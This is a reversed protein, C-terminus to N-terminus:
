WRCGSPSSAPLSSSRWASPAATSRQARGHSEPTRRPRPCTTASVSGEASKGGESLAAEELLEAPVDFRVADLARDVEVWARQTLRLFHLAVKLSPHGHAVHQRAKELAQLVEFRLAPSLPM